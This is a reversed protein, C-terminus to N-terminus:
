RGGQIGHGTTWRAAKCRPVVEALDIEVTELIRMRM